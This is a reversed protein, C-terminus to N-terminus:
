EAPRDAVNPSTTSCMEIIPWCRTSGRANAQAEDDFLRAEIADYDVALWGGGTNADGPGGQGLLGAARADGEGGTGGETM